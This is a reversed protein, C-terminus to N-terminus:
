GRQAPDRSGPRAAGRRLRLDPQRQAGVPEQGTRAHRHGARHACRGRRPGDDARVPQAEAADARQLPHARGGPQRLRVRRQELDGPGRRAEDLTTVLSAATVVASTFGDAQWMADRTHEIVDDFGLLAATRGRDGTLPSGNVGGAGAPSRNVWDLDATLRTPTACCRTSRASCTTGSRRRSPTSCTPRSPWSPRPTRARGDARGRAAFEAAAEVLDALDRRVRLRLAIRVAERRPRGAHLWGADHGIRAAFRRERCNYVEGYAPDYGFEAVPTRAAELLVGLLRRM